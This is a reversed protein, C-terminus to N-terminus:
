QMPQLNRSQAGLHRGRRMGQKRPHENWPRAWGPPGITQQTRTPYRHLSGPGHGPCRIWAEWLSGPTAPPLLPRPRLEWLWLWSGGESVRKRPEPVVGGGMQERRRTQSWCWRQGPEQTLRDSELGSSRRNAAAGPGETLDEYHQPGHGCIWAPKPCLLQPPAAGLHSNWVSISVPSGASALAVRPSNQHAGATSDFTGM